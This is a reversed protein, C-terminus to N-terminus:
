TTAKLALKSEDVLFERLADLRPPHYMATRSEKRALRSLRSLLYETEQFLTWVGSAKRAEDILNRQAHIVQMYREVWWHFGNWVMGEDLIGRRVFYGLDEFFEIVPEDSRLDIIGGEGLLLKAALRRRHIRMEESNFVAVLNFVLQASTALRSARLSRIHAVITVFLAVCTVGSTILPLANLINM